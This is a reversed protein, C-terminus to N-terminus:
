ARSNYGVLVRGMCSRQVVQLLSSAQPAPLRCILHGRQLCVLTM